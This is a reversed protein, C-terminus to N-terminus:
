NPPENSAHTTLRGSGLLWRLLPVLLLLLFALILPLLILSGVFKIWAISCLSGVVLITFGITLWVLILQQLKVRM